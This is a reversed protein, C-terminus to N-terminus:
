FCKKENLYLNHWAKAETNSISINLINKQGKPIIIYNSSDARVLGGLLMGRGM